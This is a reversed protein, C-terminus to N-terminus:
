RARPKRRETYMRTASLKRRVAPLTHVTSGFVFCWFLTLDRGRAVNEKWRVAPSALVLNSVLYPLRETLPSYAFIKSRV